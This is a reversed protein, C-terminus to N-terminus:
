YPVKKIHWEFVIIDTVERTMGIDEHMHRFIKVVQLKIDLSTSPDIDCVKIISVQKKLKKCYHGRLKKDIKSFIVAPFRNSRACIQDSAWIAAQM